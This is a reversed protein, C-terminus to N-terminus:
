VSHRFTTKNGLKRYSFVKFSLSCFVFIFPLLLTYFKKDERKNTNLNEALVFRFRGSM